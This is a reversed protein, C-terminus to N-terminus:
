HAPESTLPNSRSRKGNAKQKKHDDHRNRKLKAVVKKGGPRTQLFNVSTFLRENFGFCPKPPHSIGRWDHDPHGARVFQASKEVLRPEFKGPSGHFLFETLAPGLSHM